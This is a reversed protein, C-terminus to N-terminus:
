EGLGGEVDVEVLVQQGAGVVDGHRKDRAALDLEGGAGAGGAWQVWHVVLVRPRLTWIWGSSASSTSSRARWCVGCPRALSRSRTLTSCVRAWTPDAPLSPTGAVQAPALVQEVQAPDRDHM